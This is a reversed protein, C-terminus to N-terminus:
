KIFFSDWVYSYYGVCLLLIGCILTTEWVYSYFGVCLLLLGCMLTTDWVYSYHGVCLLLIWHLFLIGYMLSTDWVYSQIVYMLCIGYSWYGMCLPLIGFM